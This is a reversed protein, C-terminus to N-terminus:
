DFIQLSPLEFFSLPCISLLGLLSLLCISLGSRFSLLYLSISGQLSFPLHESTELLEYPFHVSPETPYAEQQWHHTKMGHCGKALTWLWQCCHYIKMGHCGKALTCLWQCCYHPMELQRACYGEVLPKRVLQQVVYSSCFSSCPDSM